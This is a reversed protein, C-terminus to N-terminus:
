PSCFCQNNMQWHDGYVNSLQGTKGLDGPKTSKERIHITVKPALCILFSLRAMCKSSKGPSRSGHCSMESEEQVQRNVNRCVIYMPFQRIKHYFSVVMFHSSRSRENCWWRVYDHIIVAHHTTIQASITCFHMIDEWYIALMLKVTSRILSLGENTALAWDMSLISGPGTM